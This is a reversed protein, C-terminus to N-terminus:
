GPLVARHYNSLSSTGGELVDPGRKQSGRRQNEAAKDPSFGGEKRREMGGEWESAVEKQCEASILISTEGASIPLYPIHLALIPSSLAWMPSGTPQSWQWQLQWFQQPVRSYFSGPKSSIKGHANESIFSVIKLLYKIWAKAHLLGCVFTLNHLWKAKKCPAM